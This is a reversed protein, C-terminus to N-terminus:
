AGDFEGRETRRFLHEVHDVQRLRSRWFRVLHEDLHLERRDVEIVQVYKMPREVVGGLERSPDTVLADTTNEADARVHSLQLRTIADEKRAVAV